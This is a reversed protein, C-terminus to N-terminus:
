TIKHSGPKEGEQGERIYVLRTGFVHASLMKSLSLSLSLSLSISLSFSLSRSLAISLPM